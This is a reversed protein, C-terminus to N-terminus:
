HAENHCARAHIDPVKFMCHELGGKWKGSM